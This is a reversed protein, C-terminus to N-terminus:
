KRRRKTSTKKDFMSGVFWAIGGVIAALAVSLLLIFWWTFGKGDSRVVKTGYTPGLMKAVFGGFDNLWYGSALTGIFRLAQGWM